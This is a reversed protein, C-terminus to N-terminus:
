YVKCVGHSHFSVLFSSVLSSFFHRLRKHHNIKHRKIVIVYEIDGFASFQSIVEHNTIHKPVDYQLSVTLHAYFSSCVIYIGCYLDVNFSHEHTVSSNDEMTRFFIRLFPLKTGYCFFAVFMDDQSPKVSAM